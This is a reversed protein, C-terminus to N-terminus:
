VNFVLLLEKNNLLYIILRGLFQTGVKLAIFFVQSWRSEFNPRITYPRVHFYYNRNSIIKFKREKQKLNLTRTIISYYLYPINTICSVYLHFRCEVVSNEGIEISTLFITFQSLTYISPLCVIFLM